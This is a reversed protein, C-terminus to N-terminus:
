YEIQVDPNFSMENAMFFLRHAQSNLVIIHSALIAEQVNKPHFQALLGLANNISAESKESVVGQSLAL